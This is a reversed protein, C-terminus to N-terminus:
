AGDRFAVDEQALNLFNRVARLEAIAFVKRLAHGRSVGDRKKFVITHQNQAGADKIREITKFNEFRSSLCEDVTPRKTFDRGHRISHDPLQLLSKRQILSRRKSACSANFGAADACQRASHLSQIATIGM